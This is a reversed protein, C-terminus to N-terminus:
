EEMRERLIGVAKKEIRSVYSRSIGLLKGVERQPLPEGGDLGFRLLIVQRERGSLEREVTERVREASIRSLAEGFVSDEDTGIVDGVTIENGDRDVGIPEELSVEGRRKRESRISMLIENEICRGAYAALSKGRSPSYTSVAKILGISGISILDDADRGRGRYKKAIHAVLRLNSEILENRADEDGEMLRAILGDEEEKTLRRKFGSRGEVCGVFALISRFFELIAGFM